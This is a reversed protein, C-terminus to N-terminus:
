YNITVKIRSEDTPVNRMFEPLYDPGVKLNSTRVDPLKSLEQEADKQSLGLVKAAVEESTIEASAVIETNLTFDATSGDMAVETLSMGKVSGLKVNGSFSNEGRASEAAVAELDDISVLYISATLEVTVDLTTGEAGVEQVSRVVPEAFKVEGVLEEKDSVLGLLETKLTTKINEIIIAALSDIDSQSVVQVEDISGGLLSNASMYVKSSDSDKLKFITTTTTNYKEGSGLAEVQTTVSSSPQLTIAKLLKYDLNNKGVASVVTGEPLEVIETSQNLIILNGTAKGGKDAKGSTPGTDSRSISKSIHKLPIQGNASDLTQIDTNAKIKASTPITEQKLSLEVEANTLMASSFIFFLIVSAVSGILLHSRHRKGFELIESIPLANIRGMLLYYVGSLTSGVGEFTKVSGASRSKLRSTRKGPVASNARTKAGSQRYSDMDFGNSFNRETLKQARVPEQTSKKAQSDSGVSSNELSDLSPTQRRSPNKTRSEQESSENSSVVERSPKVKSISNEVASKASNAMNKFRLAQSKFISVPEEPTVDSKISNSNSNEVKHSGHDELESATVKQQLESYYGPENDKILRQKARAKTKVVAGLASENVDGGSLLTFYGLDILKPELPKFIRIDEEEPKVEETDAAGFDAQEKSDLLQEAMEMEDPVEVTTIELQTVSTDIELDTPFDAFTQANEQAFIQVDTQIETETEIEELEVKKEELFEDQSPQINRVLILEEKKVNKIGLQKEKLNKATDWDDKAIDSVKTLLHLDAKRALKVALDNESIIIVIKETKLIMRSLLKMSVLSVTLESRAPVVLVVKSTDARLIRDYIKVVDDDGEAFIKTVHKNQM